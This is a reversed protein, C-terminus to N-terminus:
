QSARILETQDHACLLQIMSSSNQKLERLRNQNYIRAENDAALLCQFARLGPPCHPSESSMEGYYYYADGCHLIWNDSSKVAIGCHGASHGRLPVLLVETEADDITRVADFGFWKEGAVEHLQWDPNKAWQIPHYRFKKRWSKIVETANYESMSVHVKATPFDSLGGAHDLDLHTLIIHRVDNLDFGLQIIQKAATEAPDLQPRILRRFIRGLHDPHAIDQLGLGTDVLILDNGTEILLCHCIMKAPALLGGKGNILRSSVPCLTACNLHHIRM